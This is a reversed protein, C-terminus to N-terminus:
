SGTTYSRSPKLVWCDTLAQQPALFTADNGFYQVVCKLVCCLCVKGWTRQKERLWIETGVYDGNRGCVCVCGTGVCNGGM